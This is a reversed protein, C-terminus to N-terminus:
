HGVGNPIGIVGDVEELDFWWRDKKEQKGYGWIDDMKIIFSDMFPTRQVMWRVADHTWGGPKNWPCVKICTGCGSGNQNTVRFKTCREVDLQWYEYGNYMIKDGTSIAKSPCAIACKRCRHCFKQLGFDLPKDSTLPLDTTVAAAKFRPGLFPNLVTDGMRSMEGIGSLLLLPPIVVQYNRAHHARASYGLRRIYEAIICAIFASVSYSRMSQSNSVWDHGTSGRFTDYDQDIVITIASQHNLEIPEGRSSHTYVAYQPLRCIGVIDARLFYALKKIHRSLIEPDETIPAKQPAVSGDVVSALHEPMWGIAGSQPQKQVSRRIEKQALHGFDGRRARNFGSEREDVRQVGNTILTTPKDVRRLKEM